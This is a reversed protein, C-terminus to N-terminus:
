GDRTRWSRPAAEGDAPTGDLRVPPASGNTAGVLSAPQSPVTGAAQGVVPRNATATATRSREFRALLACAGVAIVWGALVDVVYHEGGLVLTCGMALTYAVLIARVLPSRIRPWFFAAILAPYAAHLSPFAAVPNAVAWGKDILLEAAEFPHFWSGRLSIREVAALRGTESALWPPVTPLTIYGVLGIGTVVAFRRIWARWRRRDGLWLVATLVYPVVFHTLYVLGMASEWWRGGDFPGLRAQLEVTPVDGPFLARDVIIPADIQLPMGLGDALGRSYDYVVLLLALVLWDRVARAADHWRTRLTVLYILVFGLTWVLVHERELPVGHLAVVLILAAVAAGWLALPFLDAVRAARVLPAPASDRATAAASRWSRRSELTPIGGGPRSRVNLLANASITCGASPKM